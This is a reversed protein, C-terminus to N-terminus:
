DILNPAVRASSAVRARRYSINVSVKIPSSWLFNVTQVSTMINTADSAMHNTIQGMTMQGGTTAFTSVRLAKEFVM